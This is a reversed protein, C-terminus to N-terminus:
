HQAIPQRWLNPLPKQIIVEMAGNKKASNIKLRFFQNGRRKSEMFPETKNDAEVKVMSLKENAVQAKYLEM